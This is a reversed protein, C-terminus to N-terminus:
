ARAAPGSRAPSLGARRGRRLGARPRAPAPGRHPPDQRGVAGAVGAGRDGRGGLRRHREEGRDRHVPRRGGPGGAHRGPPGRRARHARGHPGGPDAAAPLAARGRPHAARDGRDAHSVSQGRAPDGPRRQAGLDEGDAPVGPGYRAAAPDPGPDPVPRDAHGGQDALHVGARGARGGAAGRRHDPRGGGPLLPGGLRDARGQDGRM